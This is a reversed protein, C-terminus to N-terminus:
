KNYLTVMAEVKSALSVLCSRNINDHLESFVRTQFTVSDRLPYTIVSAAVDMM